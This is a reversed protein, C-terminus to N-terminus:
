GIGVVSLVRLGAVPGSEPVDVIVRLRYDPLAASLVHELPGEGEVVLALRFIGKDDRLYM